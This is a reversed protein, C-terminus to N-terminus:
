IGLSVSSTRELSFTINRNVLLVVYCWLIYEQSSPSVLCCELNWPYNCVYGDWKMCCSSGISMSNWVAFIWLLSKVSFILVCWLMREGKGKVHQLVLTLESQTVCLVNSKLILSWQCKLLVTKCILNWLRKDSKLFFHIIKYPTM